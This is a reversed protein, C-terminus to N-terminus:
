KAYRNINRAPFIEDHTNIINLGQLTKRRKFYWHMKIFINQNPIIKVRGNLEALARNAKIAKKLIIPTKSVYM